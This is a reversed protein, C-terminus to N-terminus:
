GEAMEFTGVLSRGREISRGGEEVLSLVWPPMRDGEIALRASVVLDVAAGVRRAGVFRVGGVHTRRVGRGGFVGQLERPGARKGDDGGAGDGRRRLRRLARDAAARLRVGHLRPGFLLLREARGRRSRRASSKKRGCSRARRISRPSTPPKSCRVSRS